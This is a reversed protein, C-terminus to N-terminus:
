EICLCDKPLGSHISDGSAIAPKTIYHSTNDQDDEDEDVEEDDDMDEDSHNVDDDDDDDGYKEKDGNEESLVGSFVEENQQDPDSDEESSLPQVLQNTHTDQLTYLHFRVCRTKPNVEM